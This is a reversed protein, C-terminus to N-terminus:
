DSDDEADDEEPYDTPLSEEELDLNINYDLPDIHAGHINNDNYSEGALKNQRCDAVIMKRGQQLSLRMHDPRAHTIEAWEWRYQGGPELIRVAHMRKVDRGQPDEWREDALARSLDRKLRQKPSVPKDEWTGADLISQALADLDLVEITKEMMYQHAQQQLWQKYHTKFRRSRYRAM